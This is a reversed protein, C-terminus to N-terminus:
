LLELQRPRNIEAIRPYWLGVIQFRNPHDSVTGVFFHTDNLRIMEDEFRQRFKEQWDNGYRKQWRWYAAGLEWDTCSM